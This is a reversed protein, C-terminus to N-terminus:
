HSGTPTELSAATPPKWRIAITPQEAFGPITVYQMRLSAGALAAVTWPEASFANHEYKNRPM